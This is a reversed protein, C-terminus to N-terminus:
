IQKEIMRCCGPAWPVPSFIWRRSGDTAPGDEASWPEDTSLGVDGRCLRSRFVGGGDIFRRIKSADPGMRFLMPVAFDITRDPLDDLWPDGVCWSALASISLTRQRPLEERLAVLLRRYLDRQSLLADFDLQLGSADLRGAADVLAAILDRRTADGLQAVVTRGRTNEIRVVAVRPVVDPLRLPNRNPRLDFRSTARLTVTSVLHAVGADTRGALFSLDESREWTWLM